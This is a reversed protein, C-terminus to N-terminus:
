IQILQSYHYQMDLLYQNYMNENEQKYSTAKPSLNIIDSSTAMGFVLIDHFRGNFIPYDTLTLLAPTKIYDMSYTIETPTGTFYIKGAGIDLYCYGTNNRYQMRDGYNVIQYPTYNTGIFIVRPCTNNYTISNNETYNNNEYFFAFDDPVTIYYGGSGSGSLSGTQNKKLFEWARDACVKQYIRNLLYLEESASLETVDSVQLEFKLIIEQATLKPLAM